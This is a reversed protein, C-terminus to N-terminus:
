ILCELADHTTPLRDLHLAAHRRTISLLPAEESDPAQVKLPIGAEDFWLSPSKALAQSGIVLREPPDEAEGYRTLIFEELIHEPTERSKGTFGLKGSLKGKRLLSVAIGFAKNKAEVAIFDAAGGDEVFVHQQEEVSLLADGQTKYIQAKEVVLAKAAEKMQAELRAALAERGGELYSLALMTVMM